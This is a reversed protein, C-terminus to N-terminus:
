VRISVQDAHFRISKTKFLILCLVCKQKLRTRRYPGTAYCRPHEAWHLVRAVCHDPVIGVTHAPPVCGVGCEPADIPQGVGHTLFAANADAPAAEAGPGDCVQTFGSLPVYRSMPNMAAFTAPMSLSKEAKLAWVPDIHPQLGAGSAM